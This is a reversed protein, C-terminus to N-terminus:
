TLQRNSVSYNTKESTEPRLPRKDPYHRATTAYGGEPWVSASCNQLPERHTRSVLVVTKLGKLGHLYQYVKAATALGGNLSGWPAIFTRALGPIAPLAQARDLSGLLRYLLQKSAPYLIDTGSPQRINDPFVRRPLFVAPLGPATNVESPDPKEMGSPDQPLVPSTNESNEPSSTQKVGVPQLTTTNSVNNDTLTPQSTPASSSDAASLTCDLILLAALLIIPLRIKM